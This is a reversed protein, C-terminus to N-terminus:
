LLFVFFLAWKTTKSLGSPRSLYIWVTMLFRIIEAAAQDTRSPIEIIGQHQFKEMYLFVKKNTTSLTFLIDKSNNWSVDFFICYNSKTAASVSFHINRKDAIQNHPNDTLIKIIKEKLPLFEPDKSELCAAILRLIDPYGTEELLQKDSLFQEQLKKEYAEREKAQQASKKELEEQERREKEANDAASQKIQSILINRLDM